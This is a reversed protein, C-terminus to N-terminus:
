KRRAAHWVLDFTFTAPAGEAQAALFSRVTTDPFQAHLRHLFAACAPYTGTGAISIPVADFDPGEKIAGPRIEAVSLRAGSAMDTLRALRENVLTAPELKLPLAALADRTAALDTRAAAAAASAEAAQQRRSVLEVRDAELRASHAMAPAVGLAYGGATLAACALVAAAYIRWPNFKLRSSVVGGALNGNTGSM